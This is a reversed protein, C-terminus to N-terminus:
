SLNNLILSIGATVATEARLINSWPKIAVYNNHLALDVETDTFGGEPGVLLFSETHKKFEQSECAQTKHLSLIFKGSGDLQVFENFATPHNIKPIINQGCQECSSIIVKHWHEMRNELRDRAIKQSYNSIIPTIIAVGLEIASRIALDMKDNAIISLGLHLNVCSAAPGSEISKINVLCNKRQLSIIQATYSNSNGNFLSILDGDKQRVVNLHQAVSSPLSIENGVEIPYDIYFRPM